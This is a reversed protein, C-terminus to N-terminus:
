CMMDHCPSLKQFLAGDKAGPESHTGKHDAHGGLRHSRIVLDVDTQDAAPALSKAVQMAEQVIRVHVTDRKAIDIFPYELLTGSVHLLELALLNLMEILIPPFEDVVFVYIHDNDASGVVPMAKLQHGGALGPLVHIALLWQAVADLFAIDHDTCGLLVVPDDLHALPLATIGM